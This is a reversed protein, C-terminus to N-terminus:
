LAFITKDEFVEEETLYKPFFNVLSIANIVDSTHM